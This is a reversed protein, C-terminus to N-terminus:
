TIKEVLMHCDLKNWKQPSLPLGLYKIPITGFTFGTRALLKEKAINDIRAMFISSKEINAVLGTIDRFHSLTEM